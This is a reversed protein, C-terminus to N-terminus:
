SVVRHKNAGLEFSGAIFELGISPLRAWKAQEIDISRHLDSVDVGLSSSLASRRARPLHTNAFKEDTSVTPMQKPWSPNEM